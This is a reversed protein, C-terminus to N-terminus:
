KMLIMKRTEIYDEAELKYLYVGSALNLANWEYSYTGAALRESVLTTVEEGLINYVKLTVIETKPITFEINTTPNFPNPYNQYLVFSIPINSFNYEIADIIDEGMESITALGLHYEELDSGSYLMKYTSDNIKFIDCSLAWDEDWEGPNGVQLVPNNPDRTWHIGDDSMAFGTQWPPGFEPDGAGTYWLRYKGNEQIVTPVIIFEDDWSGLDGPQLVPNEISKSWNIGDTSIAYGLGSKGLGEDVYWMRLTDGDKIVYMSSLSEEWTDPVYELVPDPHKVWTLGDSSTAYGIKWNVNADPSGLYWMKYTDGDKIVCPSGVDHDDWLGPGPTLVPNGPYWSWGSDLNTSTALVISFNDGDYGGMYFKYESGDHMAHGVGMALHVMVINWISDPDEINFVPNERYKQWIQGYGPQAISSTFTSALFLVLLNVTFFYSKM